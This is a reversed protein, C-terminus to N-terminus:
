RSVIPSSSYTGCVSKFIRLLSPLGGLATRPREGPVRWSSPCIQWANLTAATSGTNTRISETLSNDRAM